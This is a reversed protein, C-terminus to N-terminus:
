SASGKRVKFRMVPRLDAGDDRVFELGKTGPDLGYFEEFSVEVSEGPKVFKALFVVLLRRANALDLTLTEVIAELRANEQAVRAQAQNEHAPVIDQAPRCSPCPVPERAYPPRYSGLGNCTQCPKM